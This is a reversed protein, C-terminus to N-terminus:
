FMRYRVMLWIILTVCLAVLPLVVYSIRRFRDVANRQLTVSEDRVKADHEYRERLYRLNEKQAVRGAELLAVIKKQEAIIAQLTQGTEPNM